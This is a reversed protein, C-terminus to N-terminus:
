AVDDPFNGSFTNTNGPQNLTGVNFIGGGDGDASNSTFTSGSVTVTGANYIGGGSSIAFNSTFTSGSVTATGENCIGGGDSDASNSTFTSGSVTATGENFIGGGNFIDSNSTFTSGSVTATGFNYIGGGFAVSNSTFTSGSVTARGENCIGGGDAASNSTFTCGSVTLTGLNLIAGGDGDDGGPDSPNTNAGNGDKLNLNSLTVTAGPAIAFIRSNGEADITPTRSPVSQITVSSALYLEGKMLDIPDKVAATIRITDGSQANDVAWRLTHASGDDASSTVTLTSPVMRDELM